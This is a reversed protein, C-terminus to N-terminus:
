ALVEVTPPYAFNLYDAQVTSTPVRGAYWILRYHWSVVEGTPLVPDPAPDSVHRGYCAFPDITLQGAEALHWHCPHTSGCPHSLVALTQERHIAVWPSPEWVTEADVAGFANVLTVAAKPGSQLRIRMIGGEQNESAFAVPGFSARLQFRVDAMLRTKGVPLVHWVIREEAIRRSGHGHWEARSRLSAALVGDTPPAIRRSETREHQTHRLSAAFWIADGPSNSANDVFALSQFTPYPQSTSADFRAIARASSVAQLVNKGLAEWRVRWAPRRRRVLPQLRYTTESGAELSRVLWTLRIGTPSPEIQCPVPRGDPEQVLAYAGHDLNVDATVPCVDRRHCGAQLRLRLM